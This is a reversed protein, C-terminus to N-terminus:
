CGKVCSGIGGLPNSTEPGPHQSATSTGTRPPTTAASTSGSTPSSQAVVPASTSQPAITTSATTTQAHTRARSAHRRSHSSRARKAAHARRARASRQVSAALLRRTAAPDLRSALRARENAISRSPGSSATTSSSLHARADRRDANLLVATLALAAVLGSAAAVWLGRARTTSAPWLAQSFLRRTPRSPRKRTAPARALDATGKARGHDILAPEASPTGARVREVLQDVTESENVPAPERPRAVPLPAEAATASGVLSVSVANHAADVPGAAPDAVADNGTILGYLLGRASQAGPVVDVARVRRGAKRRRRTALDDRQQDTTLPAM